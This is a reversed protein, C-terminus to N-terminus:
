IKQIQLVNVGFIFILMSPFALVVGYFQKYERPLPHSGFPEFILFLSICVLVWGSCALSFAMFGSFSLVRQTNSMDNKNKSGFYGLSVVSCIASVIGAIGNIHEWGM